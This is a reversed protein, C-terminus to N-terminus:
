AGLAVCRRWRVMKTAEVDGSGRADAAERGKAQGGRWLSVVCSARSMCSEKNSITFTGSAVPARVRRVEDVIPDNM